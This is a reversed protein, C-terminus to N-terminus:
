KAGRGFWVAPITRLLLKVDLWLSWNDIYELDMAVWSEFDAVQSRGSAQWICTLGPKMSMRRRHASKEIAAVEYLPLPRPGVLSMEGRLVNFLQPLEDISYRRLWRGFGFVRPDDELKFTPGSMENGLAQKVEDLRAEADVAMTRFKWMRFPRGYRGARMQGFLLPGPSQWRVGALVVLWLWSTAVLVVAALVRDIVEKALFSWSLEPTTRLVFMARNGLYDFTPRAIRTRIFSAAVWAEVGQVECIEIAESVRGFDASRV